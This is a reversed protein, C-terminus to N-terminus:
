KSEDRQWYLGGASTAIVALIFVVFGTTSLTANEMSWILMGGITLTAVTICHIIVRTKSILATLYGGYFMILMLVPLGLLYRFSGSIDNLVPYDKALSNYGVALFIYVLQMILSVIIVFISGTLVAKISRFM